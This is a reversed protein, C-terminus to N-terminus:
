LEFQIFCLGVPLFKSTLLIDDANSIEGRWQTTKMRLKVQPLGWICTKQMTFWAETEFKKKDPFGLDAGKRNQLAKLRM